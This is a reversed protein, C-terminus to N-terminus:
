WLRGTLCNGVVQLATLTEKGSVNVLAPLPGVVSDSFFCVTAPLHLAALKFFNADGDEVTATVTDQVNYANAYNAGLQVHAYSAQAYSFVPVLLCMVLAM